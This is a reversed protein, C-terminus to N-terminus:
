QVEVAGYFQGFCDMFTIPNYFLIGVLKSSACSFENWCGVLKREFVFTVNNIM